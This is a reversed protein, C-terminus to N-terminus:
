RRPTLRYHGPAVQELSSAAWSERMTTLCWHREKVLSPASSRIDETAARLHYWPISPVVHHPLHINIDLWLWEMFRPFRVNWTGAVQATFPDYSERDFVPSGEHTHHLFTLLAGFSAAVVAPLVYMETFKGLGLFLYYAYLLGVACVFSFMTHIYVKWKQTPSLSMQPILVGFFARKAMGVWFGIFVGVPSGPGLRVALRQHWPVQEEPLYLLEPWDPDVKRVQTHRHHFDHAVRWAFFANLIPLHCLTGVLDNVWRRRSFSHHGCDHGLVFLGVLSLGAFFILVAKAPWWLVGAPAHYLLFQFVLVVLVVRVLTVWAVWSNQARHDAAITRAVDGLTKM